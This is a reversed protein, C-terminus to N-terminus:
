GLQRFTRQRWNAPRFPLPKEGAAAFTSKKLRRLSSWMGALPGNETVTGTTISPQIVSSSRNPVIDKSCTRSGAIWYASCPKGTDSIKALLGISRKWLRKAGLIGDRGLAPENCLLGTKGSDLCTAPSNFRGPPVPAKADIVAAKSEMLSSPTLYKTM